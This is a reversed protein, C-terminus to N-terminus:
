IKTLLKRTKGDRDHVYAVSKSNLTQDARWRSVIRRVGEVAMSNSSHFFTGDTFGISKGFIEFDVVKRLNADIFDIICDRDNRHQSWNGDVAIV